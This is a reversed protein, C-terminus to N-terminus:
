LPNQHELKALRRSWDIARLLEPDQGGDSRIMSFDASKSRVVLEVAAGGEEGVDIWGKSEEEVPSDCKSKGEDGPVYYGYEDSHHELNESYDERRHDGNHVVPSKVYAM